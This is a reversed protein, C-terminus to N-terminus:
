DEKMAVDKKPEKDKKEKEKPDLGKEEEESPFEDSVPTVIPNSVCREAGKKHKKAAYDVSLEQAGPKFRKGTKQTKKDIGAQQEEQEDTPFEDTVPTVIPDSLVRFTQKAPYAVLPM